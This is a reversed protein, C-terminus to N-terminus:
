LLGNSAMFGVVLLVLLGGIGGACFLHLSCLSSLVIHACLHRIHMSGVCLPDAAQWSAAALLRCVSSPQHVWARPFCVFRVCVFRACVFPTCVFRACVFCVCAAGALQLSRKLMDGASAGNDERVDTTLLGAYYGAGGPAQQQQPASSSGAAPAPQAGAAAAAEAM